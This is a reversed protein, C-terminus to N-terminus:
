ILRQYISGALSSIKNCLELQMMINSLAETTLGLNTRISEFNVPDFGMLDLVTNIQLSNTSLDPM